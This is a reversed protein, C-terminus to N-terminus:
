KSGKAHIKFRLWFMVGASTLGFPLAMWVGAAGWKLIFGFFYGTPLSIIFYAIFAILMMPKVDSIGRLANAFNIQLGDGFQYLLMPLMLSTVITSVEKSDTFWSGLQNRFLFLILSIVVAMSLIIRLGAYAVRRVNVWDNQGRFHSVRVAVAAGMGYYMLFAFTSITCMVQHAALAYAGIWGIMIASLNFSATEMGMQLGLPWGLANLRRFSGRLWGLRLFGIKYRLYRRSNFFFWVFVILMVIRSVLTSIGAGLLGLEPLGLKGYILIYNGIINLLNGGLLIWMAAKTDTIGDAFQKFANFLMIFVISILLVIYYPKMVPILESPQGLHEINLYLVYFVLMVLLGVLFNTLLSTKLAQGAAAFKGTGYLEGVVPTLGYSFGTSFIIGLNFVNNVFSAAGLELVSHHGIMLTDAFGLIIVGLQGIVIPIGLFLLAKYHGREKQVYCTENM